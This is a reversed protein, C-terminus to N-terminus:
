FCYNFESKSLCLLLAYELAYFILFSKMLRMTIRGCYLHFSDSMFRQHLDLTFM